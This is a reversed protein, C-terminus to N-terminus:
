RVSTSPWPLTMFSPAEWGQVLNLPHFAVFKAHSDLSEYPVWEDSM